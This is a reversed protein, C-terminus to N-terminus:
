RGAALGSMTRRDYSKRLLSRRRWRYWLAMALEVMGLATVFVLVGVIGILWGVVTDSSFGSMLAVGLAMVAV